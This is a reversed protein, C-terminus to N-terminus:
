VSLCILVAQLSKYESRKHCYQSVGGGAGVGSHGESNAKLKIYM